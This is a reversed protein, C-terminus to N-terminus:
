SNSQPPRRVLPGGPKRPMQIRLLSVWVSLLALSSSCGLVLREVKRRRNRHLPLWRRRQPRQLRDRTRAIRGAEVEQQRRKAAEAARQSADRKALGAAEAAAREEAEREQRARKEAEAREQEAKLSTQREQYAKREKEREARLIDDRNMRAKLSVLYVNVGEVDRSKEPRLDAPITVKVPLTATESDTLNAIRYGPVRHPESVAEGAKNIFVFQLALAELNHETRNRVSFTIQWSGFWPKKFKFNELLIQKYGLNFVADSGELEACVPEQPRPGGPLDIFQAPDQAFLLTAILLACLTRLM